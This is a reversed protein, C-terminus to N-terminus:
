YTRTNRRRLPDGDPIPGFLGTIVARAGLHTGPTTTGPLPPAGHAWETDWTGDSSVEFVGPLVLRFRLLITCVALDYPNGWTKCFDTVVLALGDPNQPQGGALPPPHLIFADCDEGRDGPGNFAIGTSTAIVPDGTGAPGALHVGATTIARVIKRADSILAPWAQRYAPHGPPYSWYHAYGM